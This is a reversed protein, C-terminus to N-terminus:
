SCAQPSSRREAASPTGEAPWGCGGGRRGCCCSAASRAISVSGAANHLLCQRTLTVAEIQDLAGPIPRPCHLAACSARLWCRHATCTSCRVGAGYRRPGPLHPLCCVTLPKSARWSSRRGTCDAPPFCCRAWRASVSVACTTFGDACPGYRCSAAPLCGDPVGACELVVERVLAVEHARLGLAHRESVRPRQWQQNLVRVRLRNGSAAQLRATLLARRAVLRPNAAAARAYRFAALAEMCARRPPHRRTATRAIRTDGHPSVRSIRDPQM